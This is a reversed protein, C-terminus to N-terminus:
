AYRSALAAVALANVLADELEELLRAQPMPPCSWLLALTGDLVVFRHTRGDAAWRASQALAAVVAQRSVTDAAGVRIMAAIRGQATPAIHATLGNITLALAADAEPGLETRLAHAIVEMGRRLTSASAPNALPQRTTTNM